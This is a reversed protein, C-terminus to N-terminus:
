SMYEPDEPLQGDACASLGSKISDPHYIQRRAAHVAGVAGANLPHETDYMLSPAFPHQLLNKLQQMAEFSADGSLFVAKLLYFLPKTDVWTNGDVTLFALFTQIAELMKEAYGEGSSLSGGLHM